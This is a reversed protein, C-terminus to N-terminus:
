LNNNAAKKLSVDNGILVRQGVAQASKSVHSSLYTGKFVVSTQVIWSKSFHVFTLNQDGSKMLSFFIHQLSNVIKFYHLEKLVLIIERENETLM